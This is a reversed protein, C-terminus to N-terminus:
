DYLYFNYSMMKRGEAQQYDIHVEYGTSDISVTSGTIGSFRFIPTSYCIFFTYDSIDSIAGTRDYIYAGAYYQRGNSLTNAPITIQPRLTSVMESDYIQDSTSAEFIVLRVGSITGNWAIDVTQDTTADFSRIQNIVPKAM